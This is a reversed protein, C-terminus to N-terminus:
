FLEYPFTAAGQDLLSSRTDCLLRITTMSRGDMRQSSDAFRKLGRALPERQRIREFFSSPSVWVRVCDGDKNELMGM